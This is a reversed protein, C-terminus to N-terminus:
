DDTENLCNNRRTADVRDYECLDVSVSAAFHACNSGSEPPNSATFEALTARAKHGLACVDSLDTLRRAVIEPCTYPQQIVGM